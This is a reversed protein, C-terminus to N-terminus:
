EKIMTTVGVVQRHAAIFGLPRVGVDDFPCSVTVKMSTGRSANAINGITAGNSANRVTVTYNASEFGASAMVRDIESTMKAHTADDVIASRAGIQAASQLVHKAYFYQGFEILGFSMITLIPFVIAMEILAGGRRGPQQTKM